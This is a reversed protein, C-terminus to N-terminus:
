HMSTVVEILDVAISFAPHDGASFEDVIHDSGIRRGVALQADMRGRNIITFRSQPVYDLQEYSHIRAGADKLSNSLPIPKPLIVTLEERAAKRLLLQRIPEDAAWTMDNTFIAVRSGKEIWKYMYDCIEENSQLKHRKNKGRYFAIDHIILAIFGIVVFTLLAGQLASLPENPDQFVFVLGVFSALTGLWSAIRFGM